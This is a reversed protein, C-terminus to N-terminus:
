RARALDETRGGQKDTQTAAADASKFRSESDVLFTAGVVVREGPELGKLIEIREANRWGTEVERPEFIGEGHEVYVRAHAGSDILADIPITVAAQLRVPLDVDVVMDPRLVLSTNDVELRLKITTGSGDSQPLSDTIRASLHRGEERLTIQALAGPHLYPEDQLYAEAVVWVRSLDAIRYFEMDHEFHQGPSINRALIVGNVPAVVDISEPLQRSDAIRKVQLDSIGLNRLRDTYNQISRAGTDAVSGPVRESAALFGSAAALFEPAYYTALKRDKTVVTGVADRYTDRVFGDVGSNIKYIRTDEPLVRGAIRVVRSAGNRTVPAVRIGALRQMAGDINVTGAPIQASSLSPPENGVDAAFVPQLAMGCDPATGPRDSKYAPHMPDVYYMVRRGIRSTKQALRHRQLLGYSVALIAVGFVVAFSIRRM